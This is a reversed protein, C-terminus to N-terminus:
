NFWTSVGTRFAYPHGLGAGGYGVAQIFETSWCFWGGCLLDMGFASYIAPALALRAIALGGGLSVYGGWAFPHRYGVFLGTVSLSGEIGSKSVLGLQSDIVGPPISVPNAGGTGISPPGFRISLGGAAATSPLAAAWALLLTGLISRRLTM